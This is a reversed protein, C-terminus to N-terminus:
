LKQSVQLQEDLVEYIEQHANYIWPRDDFLKWPVTYYFKMRLFGIINREDPMFRNFTIVFLTSCQILMNMGVKLFSKGALIPFFSFEIEITELCLALIVCSYLLLLCNGYMYKSMWFCTSKQYIKSHKSVLEVGSTTGYGQHMFHLLSPLAFLWAM